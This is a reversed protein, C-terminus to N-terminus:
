IYRVWDLEFHAQTVQQVAELSPYEEVGFFICQETAWAANCTVVSKGGGDALAQQVKQMLATREEEPLQYWAETPKGMFLKYIPRAM